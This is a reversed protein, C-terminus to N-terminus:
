LCRRNSGLYISHPIHSVLHIFQRIAMEAGVDESIAMLAVGITAFAQFTNDGKSGDKKEIHDSHHHKMEQVKQM